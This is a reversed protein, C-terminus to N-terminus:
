PEVVLLYTRADAPEGIGRAAQVQFTFAGARTPTGALVGTGRDLALGVPSVVERGHRPKTPQLHGTLNWVVEDAEEAAFQVEYPTGVKADPLRLGEPRVIAPPGGGRVFTASAVASPREGRRVTVAKVTTTEALGIPGESRPSRPTPATDDITFHIAADPAPPVLTVRVRDAFFRRNPRFEPPVSRRDTKLRKALWKMAEDALTSPGEGGDLPVAPATSKPVHVSTAARYKEGTLVLATFDIGGQAVLDAKKHRAGEGVFTLLAPDDPALLEAHQWFDAVIASLRSSEAPYVPRPADMPVGIRMRRRAGRDLDIATLETPQLDDATSFSASSALWGGASIGWAAIRGPDIRYAAARGRLFRVASRFDWWIQPLGRGGHNLIYNLNAVVYGERVAREMVERPPPGAGGYGGDKDGGGYGGGHVFLICPFPGGGAPVHVNMRVWRDEWADVVRDPLYAVDLHDEAAGGLPRAPRFGPAVTAAPVAAPAASARAGVGLLVAAVCAMFLMSTM